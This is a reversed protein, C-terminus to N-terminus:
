KFGGVKMQVQTDHKDKKQKRKLADDVIECGLEHLEEGCKECVRTSMPFGKNGYVNQRYSKAGKQIEEGCKRCSYEKVSRNVLHLRGLNMIEEYM